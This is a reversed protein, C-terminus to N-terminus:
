TEGGVQVAFSFKNIACYDFNENNKYDNPPACSKGHANINIGGGVTGLIFSVAYFTNKQTSSIEPRPVYLNYLTLDYTKDTIIVDVPEEVVAGYDTMNFKGNFDSPLNGGQAVYATDFSSRSNNTNRTVGACVGRYTDQIKLLRFPRDDSSITVNGNVNNIPASGSENLASRYYLRLNSGYRYVLKAWGGNKESFEAEPTEFYGSNWIYSYTGTCFAGYIPISGLNDYTGDSRKLRVDSRKEWYVFNYGNDNWCKQLASNNTVNGNGDYTGANTAYYKTCDNTVALASSNQVSTRLDDVVDMGTTNIQNLTLGRKYSGITDSIILAIAVSLIGVFVMSISLEVLTFGARYAKYSM